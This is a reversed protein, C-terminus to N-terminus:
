LPHDKALARADTLHTTVTDRLTSLYTKLATNEASPVLEEDIVHLADEHAIVQTDAYIADFDADSSNAADSLRLVQKTADAKVAANAASDEPTIGENTGLTMAATAAASHETAMTTAFTDIDSTSSVNAAIVAMQVEGNNLSIAVELVEGDSLDGFGGGAGGIGAEGGANTAGGQGGGAEGTGAQGVGAQGTGGTAASGASGGKGAQGGRGAAASGGHGAAGARGAAHAGGTGGAGNDDDDGSCAPVAFLAVTVGLIALNKFAM